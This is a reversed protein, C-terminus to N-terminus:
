ITDQGVTQVDLLKCCHVFELIEVNLGLFLNIIENSSMEITMVIEIQVVSQVEESSTSVFKPVFTNIHKNFRKSTLREKERHHSALLQSGPSLWRSLSAPDLVVTTANMM